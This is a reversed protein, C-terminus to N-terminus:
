VRNRIVLEILSCVFYCTEYWIRSWLFCPRGLSLLQLYPSLHTDWVSLCYMCWMSSYCDHVLCDHFYSPIDSMDVCLSLLFIILLIPIYCLLNLYALYYVIFLILWVLIFSIYLFSFICTLSLLIIMCCSSDSHLLLYSLWNIYDVHSCRWHVIIVLCADCIFMDFSEVHLWCGIMCLCMSFPM